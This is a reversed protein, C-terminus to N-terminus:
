KTKHLAGIPKWPCTLFRPSDVGRSNMKIKYLSSFFTNPSPLKKLPAFVSPNTSIGWGVLYNFIM